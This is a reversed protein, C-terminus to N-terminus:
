RSPLTVLLLMSPFITTLVPALLPNPSAAARCRLIQMIQPTRGPVDESRDIKSDCGPKNYMWEKGFYSQRVLLMDREIEFKETSDM